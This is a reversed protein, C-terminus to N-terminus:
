CWQETDQPLSYLYLEHNLLIRWASLMFYATVDAELDSEKFNCCEMKLCELSWWNTLFFLSMKLTGFWLRDAHRMSLVYDQASSYCALWWILARSVLCGQNRKIQMMDFPQCVKVICCKEYLRTFACSLSDWMDCKMEAMFPNMGQLNCYILWFIRLVSIWANSIKQKIKLIPRITM